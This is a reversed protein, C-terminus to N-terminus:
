IDINIVLAPNFAAKTARRVTKPAAAGNVKAALRGRRKPDPIVKNALPVGHSTAVGQWIDKARQTELERRREEAREKKALQVAREEEPLADIWEQWRRMKELYIEQNKKHREVEISPRQSARPAILDGRDRKFQEQRARIEDRQAVLAAKIPAPLMDFTLGEVKVRPANGRGPAECIINGASDWALILQASPIITTERLQVAFPKEQGQKPDQIPATM